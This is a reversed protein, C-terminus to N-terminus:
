FRMEVVTKGEEKSLFQISVNIKQALTAVLQLGLGSLTAASDEHVIAEFQQQTFTGGSNEITLITKASHQETSIVIEAGNPSAKAANQLLNRLITALFNRDTQLTITEPIQHQIKVNKADLM